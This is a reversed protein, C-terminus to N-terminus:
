EKWDGLQTTSADVTVLIGSDLSIGSETMATPVPPKAGRLCSSIPGNTLIQQRSSGM